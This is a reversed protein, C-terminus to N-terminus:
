TKKKRRKSPTAPQELLEEWSAVCQTREILAHLTSRCAIKDLKAAIADSPPGLRIEGLRRLIRGAVSARGEIIKNAFGKAYGEAFGQAFSQAFRQVFVAGIGGTFKDAFRQSFVRGFSEGFSEAFGDETITEHITSETM